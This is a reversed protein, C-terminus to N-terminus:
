LYVVKLYFQNKISILKKLYDINALFPSLIDSPM